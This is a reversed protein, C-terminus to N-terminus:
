KYFQSIRRLNEAEDMFYTNEIINSRNEKPNQETTFISICDSLHAEGWNIIEQTIIRLHSIQCLKRFLGADVTRGRCGPNIRNNKFIKMNSHHIFGYGNPKLIGAFENIYSEIVDIECHVLSDWSFIYDVSREKILSLKKGDNVYYKINKDKSFRKKCSNICKESMDVIILTNCLNKLYQTCRGFGPAIELMINCPVHTLIRPFITGYWLYPTGGWAESWEDGKKKWEYKKDWYHIHKDLYNM